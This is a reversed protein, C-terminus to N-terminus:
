EIFVGISKLDKKIQSETKIIWNNKLAMEFIKNKMQPKVTPLFQYKDGLLVHLLPTFPVDNNNFVKFGLKKRDIVEGTHSAILKGNPCKQLVHFDIPYHSILFYYGTYFAKPIVKSIDKLLTSLEESYPVGKLKAFNIYFGNHNEITESFNEFIMHEIDYFLRKGSTIPRLQSKEYDKRYNSMYIILYPYTITPCQSYIQKIRDITFNLEAGIRKINEDITLEKEISNRIITSMNILVTNVREEGEILLKEMRIMVPETGYSTDFMKEEPSIIIKGDEEKYYKEKWENENTKM